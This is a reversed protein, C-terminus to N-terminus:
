MAEFDPHADVLDALKGAFIMSGIEKSDYRFLEKLLNEYETKFEAFTMSGTQEITIPATQEIIIAEM